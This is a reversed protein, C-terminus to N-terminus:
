SVNEVEGKIEEHEETRAILADVYDAADALALLARKWIPNEVQNSRSIALVRIDQLERRSVLPESDYDLSPNSTIPPACKEEVMDLYAELPSMFSDPVEYYVNGNIRIENTPM